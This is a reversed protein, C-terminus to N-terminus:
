GARDNWPEILKELRRYRGQPVAFNERFVRFLRVRQLLKPGPFAYVAWTAARLDNIPAEPGGFTNRASLQGDLWALFEEFGDRAAPEFSESRGISKMFVPRWTQVTRSDLERKWEDCEKRSRDAPYLRPGDPYNADLYQLIAESDNLVIGRDEIVPALDQGSRERLAKRDLPDVPVTEFDIGKFRLAMRVKLSNPSPALEWFRLV